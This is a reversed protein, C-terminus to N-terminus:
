DLQQVVGGERVVDGRCQSGQSGCVGLQLLCGGIGVGDRPQSAKHQLGGGVFLPGQPRNPGQAHLPVTLIPALLQQIGLQQRWDCARQLCTSFVVETHELSHLVRESFLEVVFLLVVVVVSSYIKQSFSKELIM